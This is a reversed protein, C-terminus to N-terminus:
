SGGISESLYVELTGRAVRGLSLNSVRLVLLKMSHLTMQTSNNNVLEIIASMTAVDAKRTTIQM